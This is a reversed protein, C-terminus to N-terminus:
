ALYVACLSFRGLFLAAPLLRDSISLTDTFYSRKLEALREAAETATASETVGAADETTNDAKM